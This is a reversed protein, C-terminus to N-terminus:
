TAPRELLSALAPLRPALRRGWRGWAREVLLVILMTVPVALLASMVVDSPWHLGVYVRAFAVAAAPLYALWGWRRFCLAIVTAMAFANWAHGSPFSRPVADEEAPKSWSVELPLALAGIRPSVRALRVMRVGELVANPRPRAVIAKTVRVFIGDGVALVVIAMLAATRVRPSGRWLLCAVLVAFPLYWLESARVLSAWWALPACALSRNIAFLIREDLGM